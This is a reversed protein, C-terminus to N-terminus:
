APFMLMFHAVGLVGVLSLVPWMGRRALWGRALWSTLGLASLTCVQAWAAVGKGTEAAAPDLLLYAVLLAASVGFLVTSALAAVTEHRPQLFQLSTM